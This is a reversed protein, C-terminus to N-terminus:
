YKKCKIEKFIQIINFISLFFFWDLNKILFKLGINKKCWNCFTIPFFMDFFNIEGRKYSRIIGQSSLGGAFKHLLIKDIVHLDGFKLINLIFVLDWAPLKDIINRQIVNTHFVGHVFSGQNFRLYENIKKNYDGKSNIVHKELVNASQKRIIKKLKLNLKSTKPPNGSYGFYKVEGISGIIKKNSELIKINEELFTPEWLDDIAAIVFYKSQANKILYNFNKVYGLNKQQRYYKIKNYKKQYEECIKPTLDTSGNDSILIQFNQYTQNQISNLRRKIFKEGNFVPIGVTVLPNNNKDV